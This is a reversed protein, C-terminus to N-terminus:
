AQPSSRVRRWAATVEVPLAGLLLLVGFYIVTAAVARAVSAVPVLLVTASCGAALLLPPLPTAKIEHRPVARVVIMTLGAAVLAETLVDAWAGGRAGLSPVLALALVINVALAASSMIIMPRFRRLSILTLASSTSIFSATLMLGQIQLVAVAGRGQRGALLDIIFSAGLAITLSMWVGCILAVTFIRGVMDPAAPQQDARERSMLPFVATLLLAPIALAVQTVRFSTAFLGTQTASAILSLVIVTVYVYVTGISVAVAYPLTDRFLERWAHRDFNVAITLESRVLWALLALAILGSGIPVAFLALLRAGALALAAILALAVLRRSLDVATLRGLRLRAQLPISMVDAIVQVFLGVGAVLAGLVLAQEYGVALAFVAACAIGIFTLTLRMGLLNAMLQRRDADGRSGFERIGFLYIGAETMGGVLGILSTVTVYRGFDAIGLHRVLITASGLSVLVGSGYGVVRIAGGRIALAGQGSHPPCDAESPSGQAFTHTDSKLDL